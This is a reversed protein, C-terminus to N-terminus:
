YKGGMSEYIQGYDGGDNLANEIARVMLSISRTTQDYFMSRSFCFVPNNGDQEGCYGTGVSSWSGDPWFALKDYGEHRLLSRLAEKQKLVVWTDAPGAGTPTQESQTTM